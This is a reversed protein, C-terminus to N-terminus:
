VTHNFHYNKTKASFWLTLSVLLSKENLKMKEKSPMLSYSKTLAVGHINQGVTFSSPWNNLRHKPDVYLLWM